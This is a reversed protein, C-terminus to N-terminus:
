LLLLSDATQSTEDSERGARPLADPDDLGDRGFTTLDLTSRTRSIPPRVRRRWCHPPRVRGPERGFPVIDEIIECTRRDLKDYAIESRTHSRSSEKDDSRVLQEQTGGRGGPTHIIVTAISFHWAYTQWYTTRLLIYDTCTVYAFDAASGTSPKETVVHFNGSVQFFYMTIAASIREAAHHNSVAANEGLGCLGWPSRM